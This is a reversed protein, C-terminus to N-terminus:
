LPPAEGGRLLEPLQMSCGSDSCFRNRDAAQPESMEALLTAQPKVCGKIQSGGASPRKPSRRPALCVSM